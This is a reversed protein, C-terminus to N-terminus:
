EVILELAHASDRLRSSGGRRPDVAGVALDPTEVVALIKPPTTVIPAKKPPLLQPTGVRPSQLSIPTSPTRPTSGRGAGSPPKRPQIGAKLSVVRNRAVPPTVATPTRPGSSTTPSSVPSKPHEPSEERWELHLILAKTACTMQNGKAAFWRCFYTLKHRSPVMLRVYQLMNDSNTGVHLLKAALVPDGGGLHSLTFQSLMERRETLPHTLM